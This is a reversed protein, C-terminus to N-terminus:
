VRTAKAHGVRAAEVAIAGVRYGDDAFGLEALALVQDHLDGDMTDPEFM